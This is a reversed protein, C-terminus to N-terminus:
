MPHFSVEQSNFNGMLLHSRRMQLCLRASRKLWELVQNLIHIGEKASRRKVRLMETAMQDTRFHNYQLLFVEDDSSNLDDKSLQKEAQRKGM